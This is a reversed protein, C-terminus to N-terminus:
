LTSRMRSSPKGAFRASSRSVKLPLTQDHSLPSSKPQDTPSRLPCQTSIRLLMSEYDVLVSPIRPYLQFTRTWLVDYYISQGSFASMKVARRVCSGASVFHFAYLVASVASVKRKDKSAFCERVIHVLVRKKGLRRLFSSVPWFTDPLCFSDRKYWHHSVGLLASLRCPQALLALLIGPSELVVFVPVRLDIGEPQCSDM